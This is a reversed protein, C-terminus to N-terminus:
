RREEKKKNTQKNAKKENRKISEYKLLVLLLFLRKSKKMRIEGELRHRSLGKLEFGKKCCFDV